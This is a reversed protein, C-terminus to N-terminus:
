PHNTKWFQSPVENGRCHRTRMEGEVGFSSHETEIQTWILFLPFSSLLTVVTELIDALSGRPLLETVLVIDNSINDTWDILFNHLSSFILTVWQFVLSHSSIQIIWVVSWFLKSCFITWFSTSNCFFLLLLDSFGFKVNVKSNDLSTNYFHLMKVAVDRSTKKKTKM